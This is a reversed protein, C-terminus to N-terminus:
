VDEVMRVTSTEIALRQREAGAGDAMMRDNTRYAYGEYVLDGARGIAAIKVVVMVPLLPHLQIVNSAPMDPHALAAADLRDIEAAAQPDLIEAFLRGLVEERTLGLPAFISLFAKDNFWTVRKDAGKFWRPLYSAHHHEVTALRARVEDIERDFRINDARRESELRAIEERCEREDERLRNIESDERKDRLERMKPLMVALASGGGGVAGIVAPLAIAILDPVRRGFTQGRM